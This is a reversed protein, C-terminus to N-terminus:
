SNPHTSWNKNPRTPEQTLRGSLHSTFQESKACSPKNSDLVMQREGKQTTFEM